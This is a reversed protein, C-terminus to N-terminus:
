HDRQIRAEYLYGDRENSNSDNDIGRDVFYFSEKSPDSSSPGIALGAPNKPRPTYGYVNFRQVFAGTLTYEYIFRDAPSLVFLHQSQPDFVIGEADSPIGLPNGATAALDIVEQFVFGSSYTYVVINIAAGGVVYIRGTAPDCTVDEPDGTYPLTSISGELTFATGDFAYRFLSKPSDDNSIYYHDDNACYTIGTPEKNNGLATPTLNWKNFLTSATLDTLFVNAQVQNWVVAVNAEEIEADTIFLRGYGPHYFVGSPDISPVPLPTSGTFGTPVSNVQTIGVVPNLGVPGPPLVNVALDDTTTKEGDFASLRLVYSGTASFSASTSAQDPTTFSVTGPGSIQSWALTLAGPPIPLGDDSVTATLSASAPTTITQNPGAEVAPAANCPPSACTQYELHLLPAYSGEFAEATRRGSGTIVLVLANNPTWGPRNVIEQIVPALNPTQQAAARENVTTWAPPSWSVSAATRPRSSVNFKVTTFTPANDIAEAQIMLSTPESGTEDTQFQIYANTITAGQPVPISLFRLGVKQLDSDLVLELDTGTLSLSGTAREEADDAGAAVQVNYIAENGTATPLVNVALDDTTTKEGDFASLRLVYSGTASFSASTSAQDPTTFSVTGPGSVQSWTLILAGPPTPLGDDTATGSLTAPISLNVTQNPGAEVIPAANCPPTSCTQYELHLLPAYAGEFAEAVRKGSGTLIIAVANGSTWGPRNIIEQIVPALNPTQQAAGRDRVATWAPPSWTVSAATRPRSSVNFKVTTFTPANDIAEAQITLSTPESGTEDTQFQIYANTITAGQPVPINLFRLGVKQLDRDLVLELDTSALNVSGTAREEADDAGAAVQVNYIAEGSDLDLGGEPEAPQPPPQQFCGALVLTLLGLLIRFRM